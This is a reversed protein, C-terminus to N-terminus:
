FEFFTCSKENLVTADGSFLGPQKVKQSTVMLLIITNKGRDILEPFSDIAWGDYPFSEKQPPTVRNM